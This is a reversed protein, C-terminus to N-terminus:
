LSNQVLTLSFIYERSFDDKQSRWTNWQEWEERSRVFVDLPQNEGNWCALHMKYESLNSIPMVASLKISM